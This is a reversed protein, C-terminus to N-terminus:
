AHGRLTESIEMADRTPDSWHDTDASEVYVQLGHSDALLFVSARKERDSRHEFAVLFWDGTGDQAIEVDTEAVTWDTPVDLESLLADRMREAAEADPDTLQSLRSRLTTM